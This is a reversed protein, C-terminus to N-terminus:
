GPDIQPRCYRLEPQDPCQRLPCSTLHDAPDYTYSVAPGAAGQSRVLRGFADAWAESINGNADETYTVSTPQGGLLYIHYNKVITTGDPQSITNVRGLPDFTTQTVPNPYPDALELYVSRLVVSFPASQKEVLGLANYMTDTVVTQLSGGVTADEQTQMLQGLGNYFRRTKYYTSGSILQEAQTWFLSSTQNYTFRMTPTGTSDGPRVISTIRGFVDYGATTIANNPDTLRTLLGMRINGDNNDYSYFTSYYQNTNYYARTELPYAHHQTDYITESKRPGSTSRTAYTGPTAYSITTALNGWSDYTYNEDLYRPDSTPLVNFFLLNRKGALVGVTPAVNYMTNSDYM